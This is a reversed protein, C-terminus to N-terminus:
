ETITVKEAAMYGQFTIGLQQDVEGAKGVVTDPARVILLMLADIRGPLPIVGLARAIPNNPRQKTAGALCGM